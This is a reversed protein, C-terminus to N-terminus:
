LQLVMMVKLKLNFVCLNHNLFGEIFNGLCISKKLFTACVLSSGQEIEMENKQCEKMSVLKMTISHLEEGTYVASDYDFGSVLVETTPILYNDWLCIPRVHDNISAPKSLRLLAVDSIYNKKIYNPHYIIEKAFFSQVYEDISLFNKRGLQIIITNPKRPNTNEDLCAASTLVFDKSILAGACQHTMGM